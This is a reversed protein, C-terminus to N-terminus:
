NLKSKRENIIEEVAQIMMNIEPATDDILKRTDKEGKIRWYLMHLLVFILIDILKFKFFLSNIIIPIILPILSLLWLVNETIAVKLIKCLILYRRVYRDTKGNLTNQTEDKIDEYTKM